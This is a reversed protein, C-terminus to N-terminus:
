FEPAERRFALLEAEVAVGDCDFLGVAAPHLLKTEPPRELTKSRDLLKLPTSSPLMLFQSTRSGMPPFKPPLDSPPDCRAERAGGRERTCAEPYLAGCITNESIPKLNLFNPRQSKM